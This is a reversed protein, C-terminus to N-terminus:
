AALLQEEQDDEFEALAAQVQQEEYYRAELAAFQVILDRPLTAQPHPLVYAMAGGSPPPPFKCNGVCDCGVKKTDFYYQDKFCSMPRLTNLVPRAMQSMAARLKPAVQAVPSM